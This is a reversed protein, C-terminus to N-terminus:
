QKDKKMQAVKDKALELNTCGLENGMSCAKGWYKYALTYSQKVGRGNAYLFALNNCGESEGYACSKSFYRSAVEYGDREGSSVYDLGINQCELGSSCSITSYEHPDVGSSHHAQKSPTACGVWALVSFITILFYRM